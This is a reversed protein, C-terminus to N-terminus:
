LNKYIFINTLFFRAYIIKKYIFFFDWLTASILYSWLGKWTLLRRLIHRPLIFLGIQAGLHCFFSLFPSSLLSSFSTFSLFALQVWSLLSLPSSFLLPLPSPGFFGLWQPQSSGICAFNVVSGCSRWLIVHILHDIL